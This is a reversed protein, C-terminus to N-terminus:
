ARVRSSAGGATAIRRGADFYIAGEAELLFEEGGIKVALSGKLVYLFELELMSIRSSREV